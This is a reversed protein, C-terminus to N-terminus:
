CHHQSFSCVQCKPAQNLEYLHALKWYITALKVPSGSCRINKYKWILSAFLLLIPEEGKCKTSWFFVWFQWHFIHRMWILSIHHIIFSFSLLFLCCMWHLHSKSMNRSKKKKKKLSSQQIWKYKKHINGKLWLCEYGFSSQIKNM